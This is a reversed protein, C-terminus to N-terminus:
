KWFQKWNRRKLSEKTLDTVRLRPYRIRIAVFIDLNCPLISNLICGHKIKFNKFKIVFETHMDSLYLLTYFPGEAKYYNLQQQKPQLFFAHHSTWWSIGLGDQCPEGHSRRQLVHLMRVFKLVIKNNWCLMKTWPDAFWLGCDFGPGGGTKPFLTSQFVAMGM